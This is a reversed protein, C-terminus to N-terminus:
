TPGPSARLTGCATWGDTRWKGCVRAAPRSPPSTGITSAALREDDRRHRMAAAISWLGLAVLLVSGLWGAHEEVAGSAQRGLWIGLLPILFEFVGFVAVIRRRREAQGLAGLALAAALNNAGIVGGLGLLRAFDPM